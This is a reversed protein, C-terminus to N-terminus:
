IVLIRILKPLDVVFFQFLLPRQGMSALGDLEVIQGCVHHICLLGLAPLLQWEALGDFVEVLSLFCIFLIVARM